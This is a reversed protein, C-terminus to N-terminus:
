FWNYRARDLIIVKLHFLDNFLFDDLCIFVCSIKLFRVLFLKSFGLFFEIFQCSLDLFFYPLSFCSVDKISKQVSLVFVDVFHLSFNVEQGLLFADQLCENVVRESLIFCDLDPAEFGDSNVSATVGIGHLDCLPEVPCIRGLHKMHMGMQGKKTEKEDLPGSNRLRRLFCEILSCHFDTLHVVRIHRVGLLPTLPVGKM